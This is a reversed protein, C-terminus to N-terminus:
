TNNQGTLYKPLNNNITINEAGSINIHLIIDYATLAHHSLANLAAQNLMYM